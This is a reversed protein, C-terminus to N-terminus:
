ATARTMQLPWASQWLFPVYDELDSHLESLAGPTAAEQGVASALAATELAAASQYGIEALAAGAARFDISGSGPKRRTNDCVHLNGLRAGCLRLAGPISAEEINMHFFDLGLMIKELGHQNLFSLASSVTNLYPSAYRNLVELCLVIGRSSATQELFALGDAARSLETDLEDNLWHRGVAAVAVGISPAGLREAEDLCLRYHDITRMRIGADASTLDRGKSMRAAATISTVPLITEGSKWCSLQDPEGLPEVGAYGLQAIRMFLRLDPTGFPYLCVSPKIMLTWKTKKVFVPMM